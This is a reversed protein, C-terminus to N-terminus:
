EKSDVSGKDAELLEAAITHLPLDPRASDFEGFPLEEQALTFNDGLSPTSLLRLQEQSMETANTSISELGIHSRLAICAEAEAVTESEAVVFIPELDFSVEYLKKM